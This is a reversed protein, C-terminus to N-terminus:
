QEQKTAMSVTRRAARPSSGMGWCVGVMSSRCREREGCWGVGLCDLGSILGRAALSSWICGDKEWSGSLLWWGSSIYGRDTDGAAGFPRQLVGLSGGQGPLGPGCSAPGGRTMWSMGLAM